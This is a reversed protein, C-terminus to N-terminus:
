AQVLGNLRQMHDFLICKVQVSGCDHETVSQLAFASSWKTCCFVPCFSQNFMDVLCSDHGTVGSSVCCVHCDKLSYHGDGPDRRQDCPNQWIEGKRMERVSEEGVWVKACVAQQFATGAKIPKEVKAQLSFHYDSTAQPPQTSMFYEQGPCIHSSEIIHIFTLSFYWHLTRNMCYFPVAPCSSEPASTHRQPQNQNLFSDSLRAAYYTFINDWFFIPIAQGCCISYVRHIYIVNQTPKTVSKLGKWLMFDIWLSPFALPVPLFSSVYAWKSPLSLETIADKQGGSSVKDGGAMSWAPIQSGTATPPKKVMLHFKLHWQRDLPTEAPSMPLRQCLAWDTEGCDWSPATM